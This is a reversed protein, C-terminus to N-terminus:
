GNFLALIAAKLLMLAPEDLDHFALYPQLHFNVVNENEGAALALAQLKTPISAMNGRSAM